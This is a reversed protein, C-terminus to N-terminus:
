DYCWISQVAVISCDIDNIVERVCIYPVCKKHVYMLYVINKFHREPQMEKKVSNIRCEALIEGARWEQSCYGGTAGAYVCDCYVM